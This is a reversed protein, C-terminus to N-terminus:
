GTALAGPEALAHALCLDLEELEALAGLACGIDRAQPCVLGQQHCRLGLARLLTCGRLAAPLLGAAMTGCCGLHLRHLRPWHGAAMGELLGGALAETGRGICVLHRLQSAQALESLCGVATSQRVREAVLMLMRLAGSAARLRPLSLHTLVDKLTVGDLCANLFSDVCRLLPPTPPLFCHVRIWVCGPVM